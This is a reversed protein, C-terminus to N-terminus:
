QQRPADVNIKLDIGNELSNGEHDNDPHVHTTSKLCIVCRRPMQSVAVFGRQVHWRFFQDKRNSRSWTSPPRPISRHTTEEARVLVITQTDSGLCKVELYGFGANITDGADAVAAGSGSLRAHMLKESAAGAMKALDFLQRRRRNMDAHTRAM